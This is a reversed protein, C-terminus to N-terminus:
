GIKRTWGDQSHKSPYSSASIIGQFPRRPFARQHGFISLLAIHGWSVSAISPQCYTRELDRHVTRLELSSWPAKKAMGARSACATMLWPMSHSKSSKEEDNLMPRNQQVRCTYGVLAEGLVEASWKSQAANQFYVSQTLQFPPPWNDAAMQMQTYSGM